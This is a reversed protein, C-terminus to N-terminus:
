KKIEQLAAVLDDQKLQQPLIKPPSNPTRGYLLYLPVGDRQHARLLKSIEPDGSTYDAEMPVLGIEKYLAEVQPAHLVPRNSQCILCWRATVDVLVPTGAARLEDLRKQSFSEWTSLHVEERTKSVSVMGYVSTVALAASLTWAILRMKRSRGAHGWRGYLWAAVALPLLCGCLMVAQGASTQGDFVWLLWIAAGMLMFGFVQQVVHLWEGPKPLLRLLGPMATLLMYPAAMGVGVTGYLLLAQAGPMTAALGFVPGLLPGVCVAAALTTVVGSFFAGRASAGVQSLGLGMEFLGLLSLGMLFFLGVLLAVFIPNQLHFGWGMAEGASRLVILVIGLALFSVVLGASYSLGSKFSGKSSGAWHLVKLGIVPLVCPALNLLCGGLFALLLTWALTNQAAMVAPTVQAMLPLKGMRCENGSCAIWSVEVPLAIEQGDISQVKASGVLGDWTWPGVEVGELSEFNVKQSTVHWGPATDLAVVLESGKTQLSGTVVTPAEAAWMTVVSALIAVSIILIRKWM